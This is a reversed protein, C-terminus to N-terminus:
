FVPPIVQCHYHSGPADFLDCHPLCPEGPHFRRLYRRWLEDLDMTMATAALISSLSPVADGAPSPPVGLGAMMAAPPPAPSTSVDGCTSSGGPSSASSYMNQSSPDPSGQRISMNPTSSPSGGDSPSLTPLQLWSLLFFIKFIVEKM